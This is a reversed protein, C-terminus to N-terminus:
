YATVHDLNIKGKLNLNQKLLIGTWFRRIPMGNFACAHCSFQMVLIRFIILRVIIIVTEYDIYM